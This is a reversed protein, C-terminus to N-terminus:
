SHWHLSQAHISCTCKSVRASVFINLQQMGQCSNGSLVFTFNLSNLDHRFSRCHARPHLSCIASFFVPCNLYVTQIHFHKTNLFIASYPARCLAFTFLQPPSTSLFHCVSETLIRVGAAGFVCTHNIIIKIIKEEWSAWSLHVSSLQFDIDSVHAM